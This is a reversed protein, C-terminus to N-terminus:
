PKCSDAIPELATVNLRDGERGAIYVGKVLVRHGKFSEAKFGALDTLNQLRIEGKGSARSQASKIEDASVKTQERARQPATAATLQWADNPAPGFCGAVQVLTNTPVPKPGDPGVLITDRIADDTLEANGAPIGSRDLMFSLIDRYVPASLEGPSDEPMSKRIYTYLTDLSDERWRDIFGVGYLLPGDVAGGEEHCEACNMEYQQKGREAQAETFVGDLVTGTKPKSQAFGNLAAFLLAAASVALAIQQRITLPVM